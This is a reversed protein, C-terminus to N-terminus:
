DHEEMVRPKHRVRAFIANLYEFYRPYDQRTLGIFPQRAADALLVSQKNAFPHDSSVALLVRGTFLPEFRLGEFESAKLPPLIIALQLRGDRVGAINKQVPWDHVKVKVNPMTQQFKRLLAPMAPGTALSWDGVQLETEFKGAITRAKVVADETHKLIARV